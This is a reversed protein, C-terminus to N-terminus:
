SAKTATTVVAPWQCLSCYTEDGPNFLLLGQKVKDTVWERVISVNIGTNTALQSVTSGDKGAMAKLIREPTDIPWAEVTSRGITTVQTM